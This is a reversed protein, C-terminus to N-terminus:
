GSQKRQHIIFRNGEPDRAFCVQCAPFAYVDTVDAGADVLRQRTAKVDDVEFGAGSSSGPAIGLEAGTGDLAFTANGLDYEIWDDNFWEGPRLGIVEGYFHRARDVDTVYYAIFALERVM